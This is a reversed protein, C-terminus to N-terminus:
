IRPTSDNQLLQLKSSHDDGFGTRLRYFVTWMGWDSQWLSFLNLYTHLSLKNVMQPSCWEYIHFRSIAYLLGAASYEGSINDHTHACFTWYKKTHLIDEGLIIVLNYIMNKFSLPTCRLRAQSTNERRRHISMTVVTRIWLNSQVVTLLSTQTTAATQRKRCDCKESECSEFCSEAKFQLFYCFIDCKM